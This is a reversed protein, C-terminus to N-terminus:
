NYRLVGKKDFTFLEINGKFKDFYSKEVTSILTQYQSTLSLLKDRRKSDLESFVDDLLLIPRSNSKEYLFELEIIKLVLMFSRKEGRSCFEAVNKDNISIVFDDRHPGVTTHGVETEYREESSLLELMVEKYSDFEAIRSHGSYKYTIEIKNNKQDSIEAYLEGVKNKFYEILEVRKLHIKQSTLALENNWFQLENRKAKNQSILKLLANRQKLVKTYHIFDAFYERDIQSLITDIFRRRESPSDSLIEVDEPTFLVTQLNTLYEKLSVEAGNKQYTRRVPKKQYGFKLEMQDLEAEITFYNQGFRILDNPSTSRFSRPFSLLFISELLNTKGMANQGLFIQIGKEPKLEIELKEFNRFNELKLKSILM